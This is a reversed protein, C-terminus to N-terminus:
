KSFLEKMRMFNIKQYRSNYQDNTGMIDIVTKALTSFTTRWTVLMLNNGKHNNKALLRYFFKM